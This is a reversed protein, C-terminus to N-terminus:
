GREPYGIEAIDAQLLEANADPNLSLVLRASLPAHGYVAAISDLPLEREYYESAWARYTEPEGDLMALLEASGDPDRHREPFDIEGRRWGRDSHKRWICFTSNGTDFATESQFEAFDRPLSDWIGPWPRATRYMPAEHALGHLVVGAKNFLAFWHDGSGNRMSAMLEGEGWDSNFSYYRMDWDPCVIADLMALSRTLRRLGDIDPLDVLNRTSITM